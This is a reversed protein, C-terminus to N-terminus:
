ERSRHEWWVIISFVGLAMVTFFLGLFGLWHLGLWQSGTSKASIVASALLASSLTLSQIKRLGSRLLRRHLRELFQRDGFSLLQRERSIWPLRGSLVRTSFDVTKQSRAVFRKFLRKPSYNVFLMDTILQQAEVMLNFEPNLLRGFGELTICAKSFLAIDPPVSLDHDRMIVMADSMAQNFNIENLSLGVYREQYEETESILAAMNTPAHGSWDVLIQAVREPNRTLLYRTLEALQRRRDPSLRGVMGFDLMCIQHNPLILFNGPHPDAHFFGDILMMHWAIRGGRRAILAPDMGAARIQVVDKAPIGAVYEQVSLSASTYEWYIKPIKVFTLSKLNEAIQEAHKSEITFDLERKLSREFERVFECPRYRYLEESQNQLIRALHKLLRLDDEIKRTIGPKRIKLVVTEGTRLVARHVQAMSASGLPTPDIERFVELWPKGLAASIRGELAHFPQSPVADQLREFASIWEPTFVDVRTALIQGLKVFTPGMEELARVAREPPAMEIFEDNVPKHLWRAAVTLPGALELRRILDGFGFRLLVMVIDRTRRIERTTNILYAFM